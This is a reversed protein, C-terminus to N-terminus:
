RHCPCTGGERPLCSCCTFSPKGANYKRNCPACQWKKCTHDALCISAALQRDKNAACCWPRANLEKWAPIALPIKPASAGGGGGEEEDRETEQPLFQPSWGRLQVVDHLGAATRPAMPWRSAPHLPAPWTRFPM